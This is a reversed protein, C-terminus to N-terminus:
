EELYWFWNDTEGNEDFQHFTKVGLQKKADRLQKQTYGKTRAGAKVTTCLAIKEKKLKQELWEVCDM